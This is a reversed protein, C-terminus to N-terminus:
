ERLNLGRRKIEVINIGHKIKNNYNQLNNYM